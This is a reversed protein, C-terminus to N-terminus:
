GQVVRMQVQDDDVWGTALPVERVPEPQRHQGNGHTRKPIGDRFWDLMGGINRAKYGAMLWANVTDKWKDLARKDTGVTEHIATALDWNPVKQNTLDGWIKVAPPPNFSDYVLSFPPAPSPAPPEEGEREVRTEQEAEKELASRPQKLLTETVNCGENMRTNRQRERYRRVREASSDSVPNRKGFNVLTIAPGRAIMKLAVFESMVADFTEWDLGLDDCIEQETVPLDEAILLTGREPSDNAMAMLTLWTGRVVAKTVGCVRCVRLLKRDTLVDQSYVRFWPYPKM